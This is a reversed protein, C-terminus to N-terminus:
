RQGGGFRIQGVPTFLSVATVGVVGVVVFSRRVGSVASMLLVKARGWFSDMQPRWCRFSGVAVGVIGVFGGAPAFLSGVVVDWVGVGVVYLRISLIKGRDAGVVLPVGATVFRRLFLLLLLLLLKWFLRGSHVRQGGLLRGGVPAFSSGSVVGWIGVGVVCWQIDSVKGKSLWFLVAWAFRRVLWLM